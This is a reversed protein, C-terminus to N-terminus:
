QFYIYTCTYNLIYFTHILLSISSTQHSKVTTGRQRRKCRRIGVAEIRQKISEFVSRDTYRLAVMLDHHPWDYLGSKLDVLIACQLFLCSRNDLTISHLTTPIRRHVKSLAAHIASSRVILQCLRVYVIQSFLGIIM